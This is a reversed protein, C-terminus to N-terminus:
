SKGCGVGIIMTSPVCKVRADSTMTVLVRAGPALRKRGETLRFFGSGWPDKSGERQFAATAYVSILTEQSINEVRFRVHTAFAGEFEGEVVGDVLVDGGLEELVEDRDAVRHVREAAAAGIDDGAQRCRNNKEKQSLSM